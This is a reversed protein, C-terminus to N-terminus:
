RFGYVDGEVLIEVDDILEDRIAFLADFIFWAVVQRALIKRARVLLLGLQNRRHHFAAPTHVSIFACVIRRLMRGMSPAPANSQAEVGADCAFSCKSFCKGTFPWGTTQIWLMPSPRM